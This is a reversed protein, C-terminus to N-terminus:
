RPAPAVGRGVETKIRFKASKYIAVARAIHQRLNRYYTSLKEVTAEQKARNGLYANLGNQYNTAWEGEDGELWRAVVERATVEPNAIGYTTKGM